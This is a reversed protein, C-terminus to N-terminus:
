ALFDAIAAASEAPYEYFQWAGGPVQKYTSGPLQRHLAGVDGSYTDDRGELLLTPKALGALQAPWDWRYIAYHMDYRRVRNQLSVLFPEFTVEPAVGPASMRRYIDWTKQLFEGDTDMPLDRSMPTNLAEELDFDEGRAAGSMFLKDVRDSYRLAANLAVIGGGHHGGIHASAIRQDDLVAVVADAFEDCSLEHDPTDSQGHGPLDIAIVRYRDALLPAIAAYEASSQASQHVLIVAPGQGLAWYHVQGFRTGCYDRRLGPDIGRPAAGLGSAGLGAGATAIFQLLSRRDLQPVNRM